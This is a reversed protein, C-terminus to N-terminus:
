GGGGGVREEEGEEKEGEEEGGERGKSREGAGKCEWDGQRGRTKTSTEKDGEREERRGGQRGRPYPGPSTAAKRLGQADSHFRLSGSATEILPPEIAKRM